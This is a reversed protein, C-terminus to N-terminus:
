HPAALRFRRLAVIGMASLSAFLAITMWFSTTPVPPPAANVNGQTGAYNRPTNAGVGTIRNLSSTGNTPVPGFTWSDVGAFGLTDGNVNFFPVKNAPIIVDPTPAGPLAAFSASAILYSKGNTPPAVPGNSWSHTQSGSTLSGNGVGTEGGGAGADFLEIYQITGDANSFVERVDWTHIGAQATSAALLLLVASLTLRGAVSSRSRAFASVM